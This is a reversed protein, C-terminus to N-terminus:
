IYIFFTFYHCKVSFLGYLRFYYYIILICLLAIKWLKLIYVSISFLLYWISFLIVRNYGLAILHNRFSLCSQLLLLLQIFYHIHWCGYM